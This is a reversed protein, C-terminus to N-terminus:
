ETLYKVIARDCELQAEADWEAPRVAAVSNHASKSMQMIAKISFRRLSEQISKIRRRFETRSNGAAACVTWAHDLASTNDEQFSRTQPRRQTVAPRQSTASESSRAVSGRASRHQRRPEGTVVSSPESSRRSVSFFGGCILLFTAVLIFGRLRQDGSLNRLSIPADRPVGFVPRVVYRGAGVKLRDLLRHLHRSDPSASIRKSTGDLYEGCHKCKIAAAQIPEVCFPCTRTNRQDAEPHDLAPEHTGDPEPETPVDTVSPPDAPENEPQPSTTPQESPSPSPSQFQAGCRKCRATRGAAAAPVRFSAGCTPCGFSLASPM